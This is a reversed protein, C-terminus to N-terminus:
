TQFLVDLGRLLEKRTTPIITLNPRDDFQVVSMNPGIRTALKSVEVLNSFDTAFLKEGIPKAM